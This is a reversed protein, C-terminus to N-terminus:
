TSRIQHRPCEAGGEITEVVEYSKIIAGVGQNLLALFTAATLPLTEVKELRVPEWAFEAVIAKRLDLIVGRAAEASDFFPSSNEEDMWRLAEPVSAFSYTYFYASQAEPLPKGRFLM